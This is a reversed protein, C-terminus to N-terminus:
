KPIIDEIAKTPKHPNTHTIENGQADVEVMQVVVALDKFTKEKFEDPTRAHDYGSVTDYKEPRVDVGVVKFYTERPLIVEREFSHNRAAGTVDLGANTKLEFMIGRIEPKTYYDEKTNFANNTRSAAVYPSHSTSLYTNYNFTKGLKYYEKLGAVLGETDTIHLDKGISAGIEDHLSKYIPIGRYVIRSEEQRPALITDMTEMYDVLDERDAFDCPGASEKWKPAEDYYQYTKGFLINNCVGASFGTYGRLALKEEDTLHELKKNSQEMHEKIKSPISDALKRTETIKQFSVGAVPTTLTKRKNTETDVKTFVDNINSFTTPAPNHLRCIAGAPKACKSTRNTQTNVTM